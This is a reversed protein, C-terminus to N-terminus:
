PTPQNFAPFLYGGLNIWKDPQGLLATRSGHINTPLETGTTVPKITTTETLIVHLPASTTGDGAITINDPVVQGGLTDLNITWTQTTGDDLRTTLTLVHTVPDYSFGSIVDLAPLNAIALEIALNMDECSPLRVGPARPAGSCDQFVSAILSVDTAADIAANVCPSLQACLHTLAETDLPIQGTVTTPGVLTTSTFTNSSGGSQDIVGGVVHVASLMGGTINLNTATGNTANVAGIDEPTLELLAAAILANVQTVLAANIATFVAQAAEASLTLTGLLETNTLNANTANLATLAASEITSTICGELDACIATAISTRATADLGVTGTLSANVLTGMRVLVSDLTTGTFTGNDVYNQICASLDGCIQNAIATATAADLSVGGTLTSNNFVGGMINPNVLTIDIWTGGDVYVTACCNNAM